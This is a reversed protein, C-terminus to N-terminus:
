IQGRRRKVFKHVRGLYRWTPSSWVEELREQLRAIEVWQDEIFDVEIDDHTSRPDAVWDLLARTTTDISYRPQVFSWPVRGLSGVAALGDTVGQTNGSIRRRKEGGLRVLLSSLLDPDGVQLPFFGEVERLERTLDCTVTSAAPLGREMADLLRTRSGFEAEYCPMDMNVALDCAQYIAALHRTPVWGLFHFRRAHKSREALKRFRQYAGEHHNNLAGGTSVLHIHEDTDMAKLLGKLLTQDDLWTNYGGCFLVSFDDPAIGSLLTQPTEPPCDRYLGELSPPVVHVLESGMERATLRGALGLAGILVARQSSSIVSFMDGRTVALSLVQRYRHVPDHSGSRFARLQAESMPDGPVDIWLPEAGAARAGGAMPAFPGASVVVDPEFEHRLDRLSLFAGPEDHRVPHYHLKRAGMATPQELQRRWPRGGADDTGGSVLAAMAVEHGAELLAILFQRARLAPFGLEDPDQVPLPGSGVLFVRKTSGAATM